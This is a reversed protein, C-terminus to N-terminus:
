PTTATPCSTARDTTGPWTGCVCGAAYCCPYVERRQLVLQASADKAEAAAPSPTTYPLSAQLRRKKRLERGLAYNKREAAAPEM